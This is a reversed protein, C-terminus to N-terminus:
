EGVGQDILTGALTGIMELTCIVLTVDVPKSTSIIALEEGRSRSVAAKVKVGADPKVILPVVNLTSTLECIVAQYVLVLRHGVLGVARGHLWCYPLSNENVTGKVNLPLAEAIAETETVSVFEAPM